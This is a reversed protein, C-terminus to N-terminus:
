AVELGERRGSRGAGGMATLKTSPRPHVTLPSTKPGSSQLVAQPRTSFIQPPPPILNWLKEIHNTVLVTHFLLPSCGQERGCVGAM